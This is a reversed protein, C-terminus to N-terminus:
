RGLVSALRRAAERVADGPAATYSLRIWEGYEEGCSTGPAVLVGREFCDELLGALGREDLRDRVDLFLFTGGEPSAVGLREAVDVGVARDEERANAIWDDGEELAALATRQGVIPPHYYIHTAIKRAEALVREPGALYGVRQGAMAYSKSFSYVSITREPAFRGMSVHGGIASSECGSAGHPYHYDEYVEDSFVWLDHHRALNALAELWDGPIVRGTPNSPTSVYLVRSRATIRSEVQEIAERRCSVRDFFPVEISRARFSQAIGRILPWFPALILMEDGPSLVAGAVAALGGTAGATILVEEPSHRLGNKEALKQSVREILDPLGRTDGYAHLRPHLASRIDESRAGVFPDRWTDGVHLPFLPGDSPDAMREAMRDAFPSYIVGPMAATGPAIEPRSSSTTSPPGASGM